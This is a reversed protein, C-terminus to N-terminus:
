KKTFPNETKSANDVIFAKEELWWEDSATKKNREGNENDGHWKDSIDSAMVSNIDNDEPMKSRADDYATNMFQKLETEDEIGLDMDNLVEDVTPTGIDQINRRNLNRM